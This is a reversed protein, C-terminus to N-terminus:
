LNQIIKCKDCLKLKADEDTFRRTYDYTMEDEEDSFNFKLDGNDHLEWIARIVNNIIFEKDSENLESCGTDIEFDAPAIGVSRDGVSQGIVKITGHYERDGRVEPFPIKGSRHEVDNKCGTKKKM